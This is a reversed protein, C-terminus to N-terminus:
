GSIEQGGAMRRSDVQGHAGAAVKGIVRAM